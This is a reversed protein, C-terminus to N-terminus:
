QKEILVKVLMQCFHVHLTGAQLQNAPKCHVVLVMLQWALWGLYNYPDLSVHLRTGIVQADKLM